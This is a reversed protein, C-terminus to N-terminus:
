ESSGHNQRYEIDCADELNGFIQLREILEPFDGYTWHRIDVNGSKTKVKSTIVQQDDRTWSSYCGCEWSADFAIVELSELPGHIFSNYDPRMHGTTGNVWENLFWRNILDDVDIM